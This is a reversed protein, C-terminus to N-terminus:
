SHWLGSDAPRVLHPGARAHALLNCGLRRAVSAYHEVDQEFGVLCVSGGAKLHTTVFHHILLAGDNTPAAPHISYPRSPPTALPSRELSADRPLIYCDTCTRPLSPVAAFDPNSAQLPSLGADKILVFGHWPVTETDIGLALNLDEYM